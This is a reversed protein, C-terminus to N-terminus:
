GNDQEGYFTAEVFAAEPLDFGTEQAAILLSGSSNKSTWYLAKTGNPAIPLEHRGPQLTAEM